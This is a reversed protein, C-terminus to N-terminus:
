EAPVYLGRCLTGTGLSTSTRLCALYPPRSRLGAPLLHVLLTTWVCRSILAPPTAGHRLCGAPTRPCHGGDGCTCRNFTPCHPAANERAGASAVALRGISTAVAPSNSCGSM